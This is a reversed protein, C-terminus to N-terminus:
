RSTTASPSRRRRHRRPSGRGRPRRGQRHRPAARGDQRGPRRRRGRGRHRRGPPEDRRRPQPREPRLEDPVEAPRPPPHDRAAARARRRRLRGARRGPAHRPRGRRPGQRRGGRDPRPPDPRGRHAQHHGAPRGRPPGPRLREPRGDRAHRRHDPRDRHGARPGPHQPGRPRHDPGEDRGVPLHIVTVTHEATHDAAVRQIATVIVERAKENADERARREISRALKVADHEAEERVAELLIGKADEASLGSVRELAEVQEQHARAVEERSRDIEREREILKRDRGELMDTRQDLQEDRQLLRRELNGLETRKARAEDEAERQLRIKEEKAELILDKQQSRAKEVICPPRRRPKRSRAVPSWAARRRIRTRCRRRPGALQGGGRRRTGDHRGGTRGARGFTRIKSTRATRRARDVHAARSSRRHSARRPCAACALKEAYGVAPGGPPDVSAYRLRSTGPRDVLGRGVAGVPRPRPGDARIRCDSSGPDDAQRRGDRTASCSSPSRRASATGPWSPMPGRGGSARIPSGSSTVAGGPRAASARRGRRSRGASRMRRTPRDSGGAPRSGPRGPRGVSAARALATRHRDRDVGRLRLEAEPRGRRTAAVPRPVRDLAARVDRRRPPRHDSLREITATSSTPAIAPTPWAVVSRPWRARGRRSSACGPRSSSRRTTSRPGDPAGSPAARAVPGAARRVHGGPRGRGDTM